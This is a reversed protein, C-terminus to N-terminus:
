LDLAAEIESLAKLPALSGKNVDGLLEKIVNHRQRLVEHEERIRRDEESEKSQSLRSRLESLLDDDSLATSDEKASGNQTGEELLDGLGEEALWKAWAHLHSEKHRSLGLWHNFDRDCLPCVYRKRQQSWQQHVNFSTNPPKHSEPLKSHTSWSDVYPDGKRVKTQRTRANKERNPNQDCYRMHAHLGKPHCLAECYPCSSSGDSNQPSKKRRSRKSPKDPHSYRVHHALRAIEEFGMPCHECTYPAKRTTVKGAPMTEGAEDPTVKREYWDESRDSRTYVMPLAADYDNWQKRVFIKFTYTDLREISVVNHSLRLFKRAYEIDSQSPRKGIKDLSGQRIFGSISGTVVYGPGLKDHNVITSKDKEAARLATEYGTKAIAKIRRFHRQTADETTATASM